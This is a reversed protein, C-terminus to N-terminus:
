DKTKQTREDTVRWRECELALLSRASQQIWDPIQPRDDAKDSIWEELRHITSQLREIRLRLKAELNNRDDILDRITTANFMAYNQPLQMDKKWEEFTM